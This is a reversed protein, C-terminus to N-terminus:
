SSVGDASSRSPSYMAEIQEDTLDVNHYERFYDKTIAHIDVDEFLDPYVTKAFWQLTVPTDAGPTYTRYLGLPMKYVQKNKVANVTSWDDSGIANTYLDEPLAETFNTIIIMDPNWEYVQEMNIAIAGVGEADEAVNVTGTAECWYQGFFVPGSTTMTEESYNFLIMVRKKEEDPLASVRAQIDEYTKHSYESIRQTLPNKGFIEDFLAIWQDYTEVVNYDWNSVSLTVAPIGVDRLAQAQEAGVGIVIDPELKLLEELNVEQGDIFGTEAELIEPFLESLLGSKAAGMSAPHMGVIKEAGGLYVTLVSALPLTNGVVIRDIKDPIEVEAGAHDIITRTVAESGKSTEAETSVAEGSDSVSNQVAATESSPSVASTTEACGTLGLALTLTLCLSLIRKM